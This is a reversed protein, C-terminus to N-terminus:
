GAGEAAIIQFCSRRTPLDEYRFHFQELLLSTRVTRYYEQSRVYDDVTPSRHSTSGETLYVETEGTPIGSTYIMHLLILTLLLYGM